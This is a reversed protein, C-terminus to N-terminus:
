VTTRGGDVTITTGQLYTTAEKSCLLVIIAALEDPEGWRRLPVQSALTEKRNPIANNTEINIESLFYGPALANVRLGYKGWSHAMSRTLSRLGDKSAEYSGSTVLSEENSCTIGSISALNVINGYGQKIMHRAVIQSVNLTGTLNTRIADSFLELSADILPVFEANACACNILADIRGFTGMTKNVVNKIADTDNIDAVGYICKIGYSEMEKQSDLLKKETRSVLCLDSGSKALARAFARGLGQSGGTILAAKGELNFCDLM